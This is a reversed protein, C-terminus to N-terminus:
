RVRRLDRAIEDTRLELALSGASRNAVASPSHAGAIPVQCGYQELLQRLTAVSKELSAIQSEVVERSVIADKKITSIKTIEKEIRDLRAAFEAEVMLRRQEAARRRCEAVSEGELDFILRFLGGVAPIRSLRYHGLLAALEPLKNGAIRGDTTAVMESLIGIKSAGGLLQTLRHQYGHIDPLKNCLTLYASEVFVAGQCHLLEELTTAPKSLQAPSVSLREDAVDLGERAFAEYLGPLEIGLERCEPSHFLEHLFQVKSTGGALRQLYNAIGDADPGRKLLVWYAIEILKGDDEIQLLQEGHRVHIAELPPMSTPEDRKESLGESACADALGLVEGGARLCEDSKSLEYLIQLKSTGSLLARQYIMGGVADPRRKLLAMYAADVFDEGEERMLENLLAFDVSKAGPMLPKQEM